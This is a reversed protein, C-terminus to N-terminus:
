EMAALAVVLTEVGAKTHASRCRCPRRLTGAMKTHSSTTCHSEAQLPSMPIAYYLSCRQTHRGWWGRRLVNNCTESRGAHAGVHACERM